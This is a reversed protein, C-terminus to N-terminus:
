KYKILATITFQIFFRQIISLFLVVNKKFLINVYMIIIIIIYYDDTPIKLNNSRSKLQFESFDVLQM